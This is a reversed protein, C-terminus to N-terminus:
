KRPVQKRIKKYYKRPSNPDAPTNPDLPVVKHLTKGELEEPEFYSAKILKSRHKRKPPEEPEPEPEEVKEPEEVAPEQTDYEHIFETQLMAAFNSGLITPGSAESVETYLQQFKAVDLTMAGLIAEIARALPEPKPAPFSLDQEPVKSLEVGYEILLSFTHRELRRELPQLAEFEGNLEGLSFIVYLLRTLPEFIEPHQVDKVLQKINNLTVLVYDKLFYQAVVNYMSIQSNTRLGIFSRVFSLVYRIQEPVENFAHCIFKIVNTVIAEIGAIDLNPTGLGCGGTSDIYKALNTLFGKEFTSAYTKIITNLATKTHTPAAIIENVDKTVDQFDNILLASLLVPIKNGYTFCTVFANIVDKAEKATPKIINSALAARLIQADATVIYNYAIQYIEDVAPTKFSTIYQILPQPEKLVTSWLQVQQPEEPVFKAVVKKGQKVQITIKDKGIEIADIKGQFATQVEIKKFNQLKFNNDKDLIAWFGAKKGDKKCRCIAKFKQTTKTFAPPYLYRSIWQLINVPNEALHLLSVLFYIIFDNNSAPIVPPWCNAIFKFTQPDIHDRIFQTLNQILASPGSLLQQLTHQDFEAAIEKVQDNLPSGNFEDAGSLDAAKFTEYYTKTYEKYHIFPSSANLSAFPSLTVEPPPVEQKIEVKPAEKPAEKAQKKPM